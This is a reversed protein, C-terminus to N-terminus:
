ENKISELVSLPKGWYPIEEVTKFGDAYKKNRFERVARHSRTLNHDHRIDLNPFASAYNMTVNGHRGSPEYHRNFGMTQIESMRRSFFQLMLDTSACMGSLQQLENTWVALGDLWMKYVNINFYFVNETPPDFEFHSPHYLVDSECLYVTDYEHNIAALGALIQAHMTEPSRTGVMMIDNNTFNIDKNLSVCVIPLGAKLLQRRCAEDVKPDHTNCTYYLIVKSM